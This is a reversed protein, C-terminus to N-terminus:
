KNEKLAKIIDDVTETKPMRYVSWFLWLGSIIASVVFVSQWTASPLVADKFTTTALTVLVTIFIGLPTTWARRRGLNELHSHMCLRVKDVTTTIYEQSVNYVVQSEKAKEYIYNLEERPEKRKETM